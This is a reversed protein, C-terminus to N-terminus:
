NHWPRVPVHRIGLSEVLRQDALHRSIQQWLTEDDGFILERTADAVEWAGEALESELQGGSWGSSAIVVKLPECAQQLLASFHERQSTFHVGPAVEMEGLMANTHMVVLPGEVPGGVMVPLDHPCTGEGVRSWIDSLRVSSRRNIVLGFAGEGDHHLLLVVTRSFHSDNLDRSAVLLKGTLSVAM